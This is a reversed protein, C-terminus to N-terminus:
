QFLLHFIELPLPPLHHPHSQSARADENDPKDLFPAVHDPVWVSSIEEELSDIYKSIENFFQKGKNNSEPFDSIFVGYACTM